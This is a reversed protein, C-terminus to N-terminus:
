APVWPKLYEPEWRVVDEVPAPRAASGPTAGLGMLRLLGEALPVGAPARAVAFGAARLDTEHRDAGDGMFVADAPLSGGLLEPLETAHPRVLEEMEAGTFRYCAAYVRTSRADFLVYRPHHAREPPLAPAGWEGAFGEPEPALADAAAAGAALSSVAYLPAGGAHVLGKATAAAVRLGTFSGPGAGVVVGDLDAPAAGARELADRIAPVLGQAHRRRETLYGRSVVAGGRAVAVSGLSTATDLALLLDPAGDSGPGAASM